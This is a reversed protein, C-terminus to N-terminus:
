VTHHPKRTKQRTREDPKPKYTLLEHSHKKQHCKACLTRLNRKTNSGRKSLPIIHHVAREVSGRVSRRCDTCRYGDREYVQTSLSKWDEKSGYKSTSKTTHTLLAGLKKFLATSM